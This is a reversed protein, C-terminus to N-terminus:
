IEGTISFKSTRLDIKNKETKLYSKPITVTYTTTHYGPVNVSFVSKKYTATVIKNSSKMTVKFNQIKSIAGYNNNVVTFKIIINGKKDFSADYAKMEVTNYPIDKIDTKAVHFRNSVVTVKCLLTKGSTLKVKINVTGNKKATIKGKQTVSAVATNSSTCSKMIGGNVVKIQSSFGKTIIIKSSSLKAGSSVQDMTFDFNVDNEFSLELVYNGEPLNIKASNKYIGKSSIYQMNKSVTSLYVTQLPTDHDPDKITITSGIRENTKMVFSIDSKKTLTFNYRIPSNATATSVKHMLNVTSSAAQAPVNGVFFLSFLLMFAALITQGKKLLKINM